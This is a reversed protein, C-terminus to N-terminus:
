RWWWVYKDKIVCKQLMRSRWRTLRSSSTKSAKVCRTYICRTNDLLMLVILTFTSMQSKCKVRLVILFYALWQIRIILMWLSLCLFLINKNTMNNCDFTFITHWLCLAKEHSKKIFYIRVSFLFCYCYCCLVFLCNQFIACKPIQM